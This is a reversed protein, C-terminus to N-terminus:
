QRFSQAEEEERLLLAELDYIEEDDLSEILRSMRARRDRKAKAADPSESRTGTWIAETSEKVAVILAIVIVLLIFGGGLNIDADSAGITGILIAMIITFAAWIAVTAPLRQNNDM